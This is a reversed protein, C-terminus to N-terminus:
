TFLYDKRIVQETHTHTHKHTHIHTNTNTNTESRRETLRDTPKESEVTLKAHVTGYSRLLKLTSHYLFFQLFAM